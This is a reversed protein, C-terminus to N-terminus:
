RYLVERVRFFFFSFPDSLGRGGHVCSASKRLGRCERLEPLVCTDFSCTRRRREGGWEVGTGAALLVFWLSKVQDVLSRQRTNRLQCTRLVV